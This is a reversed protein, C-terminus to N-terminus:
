NINIDIFNYPPWPGTLIFTLKPYRNQMDKVIRILENEKDKEILLVGDIINRSSIETKFKHLSNFHALYGKIEEIVSDIFNALVKDQKYKFFKKNVYNRYASNKSASSSNLTKQFESKTTPMFGEKLKEINGFVKIGYEYKNKVKKLNQNIEQYNIELKKKITKASDVISGFQMPLLTYYQKMNEILDAYKIIQPKTKKLDERKIDGIVASVNKFSVSYLIEESIGKMPTLFSTLKDPNNNTLIIAYIMKDM